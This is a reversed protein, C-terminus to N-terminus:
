KDKDRKLAQAAAELAEILDEHCDYDEAEWQAIKAQVHDIAEWADELRKM